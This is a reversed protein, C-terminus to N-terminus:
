VVSQSILSAPHSQCFRQKPKAAPGRRSGPVEAAGQPSLSQEGGAGSHAVRSVACKIEFHPLTAASSLFSFSKTSKGQDVREAQLGVRTRRNELTSCVWLSRGESPVSSQNRWCCGSTGGRMPLEQLHPGSHSQPLQVHLAAGLLAGARLQAHSSM